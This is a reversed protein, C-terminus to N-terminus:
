FSCVFYWKISLNSLIQSTLFICIWTAVTCSMALAVENSFKLGSQARTSQGDIELYVDLYVYIQAEYFNSDMKM